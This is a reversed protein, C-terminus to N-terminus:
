AYLEDAIERTIKMGNEGKEFLQNYLIVKNLAERSLVKNDKVKKVMVGLFGEVNVRNWESMDHFNLWLTEMDTKSLKRVKEEWELGHDFDNALDILDQRYITM